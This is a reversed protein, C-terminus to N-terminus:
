SAASTFWEKGRGVWLPIVIGAHVAMTGLPNSGELAFLSFLSFIAALVTAIIRGAPDRKGIRTYAMWSAAAAAGFLLLGVVLTTGASGSGTLEGLTNLEGVSGLSPLLGITVLGLLSAMVLLLTQSLVIGSPREARAESEAFVRKAWPSLFLVATALASVLAAVGMGGPAESGLVSLVLVGAIVASLGRGLPDGNFVKVATYALGVVLYLIVLLALLAVWGFAFGLGSGGLGSILDPLAKIAPWAEILLWLAALLYLAAVVVIELCRQRGSVEVTRDPVPWAFNMSGVGTMAESSPTHAAEVPLAAAVTEPVALPEPVAVPEPGPPPAAAVVPEPTPAVAPEPAPASAEEVEHLTSRRVTQNGTPPATARAALALGCSMCFQDEPIAPGGCRPCFNPRQAAQTM